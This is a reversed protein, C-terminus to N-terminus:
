APSVEVRLTWMSQPALRAGHVLALRCVVSRRVQVLSKALLYYVAMALTNALLCLNGLLM